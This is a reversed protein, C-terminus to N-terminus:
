WCKSHLTSPHKGKAVLVQFTPHQPAHCYNGNCSYKKEKRQNATVCVSVRVCPCVSVRVCQRVCVGVQSSGAMQENILQYKDDEGLGALESMAKTFETATATAHTTTTATNAHTAQTAHNAHISPNERTAETIRTVHHTHKPLLDIHQAVGASPLTLRAACQHRPPVAHVGSSQHGPLVASHVAHVGSPPTQPSVSQSHQQRQQQASSCRLNCAARPPSATPVPPLFANVHQMGTCTDSDSEICVRRRHPLDRASQHLPEVNDVASQPGPNVSDLTSQPGRKSGSGTKKTVIRM